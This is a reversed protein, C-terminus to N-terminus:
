WTIAMKNKGRERQDKKIDWDMFWGNLKKRREVFGYLTKLRKYIDKKRKKVFSLGSKQYSWPSLWMTKDAAM